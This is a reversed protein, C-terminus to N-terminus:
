KLRTTDFPVQKQELLALMEDTHMISLTTKKGNQTLFCFSYEKKSFTKRYSYNVVDGFDISFKGFLTHVVISNETVILKHKFAILFLFLMIFSLIVCYMFLRILDRSTFGYDDRYVYFLTPYIISFIFYAITVWLLVKSKKKGDEYILITEEM